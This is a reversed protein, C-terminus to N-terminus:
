QISAMFEPAMGTANLLDLKQELLPVLSESVYQGPGNDMAKDKFEAHGPVLEKEFKHYYELAKSSRAILGDTSWNMKTLGCAVAERVQDDNLGSAGHLVVGIPRGTLKKLLAAAKTINEPSFGPYGGESFGHQNGLGPAFLSIYGPHVKEVGMILAEVEEDSTLGNDVGAEMELNIERGCAKSAEIIKSLIRVNEEPALAAADLSISSPSLLMEQGFGRIPLGETAKVLIEETQPGKIHDTHYVVPVEKFEDSNALLSIHAIYQAIGRIPDGAGFSIGELQWMSTEIFIPAKAGKAAKLCDHIAAPSDANVAFLAFKKEIAYAILKKVQGPALLM